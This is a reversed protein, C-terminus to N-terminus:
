YGRAPDVWGGLATLPEGQVARALKGVLQQISEDRLTRASCHPTVKVQPHRWFPHDSPLPETHFVDLTAGALHGSDLLALLDADVLHAGRAVNVVHGGPRLLSLTHRNLLGRTAPTLPLVCVLGTCAQLCPALGEPGVHLVVGEPVPPHQPGRPHQVWAHVPFEFARLAQAVRTGLVGLGLVAVAFRSRQPPPPSTWEGRAQAAELHDFGRFHRVLAHVAYEAMQVAMGADELRVIPLGPPWRLRMLADVGAGLNFVARLRTQQDLFAQPPAWVLAYDLTAPDGDQWRHLRAQPLARALAEFWPEPPVGPCCWGINM